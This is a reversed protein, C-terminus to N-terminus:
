DITVVDFGMMRGFAELEAIDVDYVIASHHTGGALSYEKLFQPLPKAPKYWGQTASRYAGYELGVDLMEGPCLVMTFSDNMPALNVITVKGERFCSYMGITDGCSNYGFPCDKIIPRWKALRPNSEGMHSLLVVDQEWDPCFMETFTVEPFASLLAGVFAATLVDGEGAFGVGHAMARSCETFPMIPLGPNSDETALYNVSLAQLSQEEMWKRVALATKASRDYVERTLAPDVDYAACDAAYAADIEEQTVAEIRKQGEAFDYAVVQVGLDRKLEEFPIQFDGMGVFVDGVLGVRSNRLAHAAMTGRVAAAVRGLVDSHEMHGAFVSFKKGNRILRNCMDQVGHIGHNRMLASLPTFQDYTYGPTTDLVILPLKTSVLAKESELSPSYALHLTIVADANRSEFYAVAEAFEQELRCIPVTLVHLGEAELLAATKAYALDIDPRVEPTTLDYLELYLPLLGVIPKRM